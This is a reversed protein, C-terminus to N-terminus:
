PMSQVLKGAYMVPGTPEGTPSGGAPELSVAFTADMYLDPDIDPAMPMVEMDNRAVLGLSRPQNWSKHVMWLEYSKDPKPPSIVTKIACMHSKMDVTMLFAPSHSEEQLVAVYQSQMPSPQQAQTWILFGALSAALASMSGTALRWSRTKAALAKKHQALSIVGDGAGADQMALQSQIKQFLEKPPAIPAVSDLLPALREEWRMIADDLVADHQRQRAVTAREVATLTGVVFEAAREEIDDRDTM